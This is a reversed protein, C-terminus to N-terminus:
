LEADAVCEAAVTKGASEGQLAAAARAAAQRPHVARDAHGHQLAGRHAHVAGATHSWSRCVLMELPSCVEEDRQESWGFVSWDVGPKGLQARSCHVQVTGAADDVEVREETVVNLQELTYPHEPDVIDRIHQLSPCGPLACLPRHRSCSGHSGLQIGCHHCRATAQAPALTGGVEFVELADIPEREAGGDVPTQQLALPKLM